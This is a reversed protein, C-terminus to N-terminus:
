TAWETELLSRRRRSAVVLTLTEALVLCLVVLALWWWLGHAATQTDALNVEDASHTLNVTIRQGLAAVRASDVATLDSEDRDGNVALEIQWVPNATSLVGQEDASAASLRYIGRRYAQRITVGFRERDFYEPELPAVVGHEPRQLVVTSDRASIPLEVQIATGTMTDRDAITSRILERALRDLMVVANSTPLTNWTSTIGTSFFLVRGREIEREVLLPPGEASELRAAVRYASAFDPTTDIEVWKFFLPEAYLISLSADSVDPLRLWRSDRLSDFSLLTPNVHGSAGRVSNEVARERLSR